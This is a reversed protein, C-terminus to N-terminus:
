AFVPHLADRISQLFPSVSFRSAPYEGHMRAGRLVSGRFPLIAAWYLLM